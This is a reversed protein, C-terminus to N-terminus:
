SPSEPSAKSTQPTEPLVVVRKPRVKSLKWVTVSKVMARPIFTRSRYLEDGKDLCRENFISVGVEDDRLIWGRTEMLTAKHKNDHEREGISDAADAWADYWIVSVFPFPETM